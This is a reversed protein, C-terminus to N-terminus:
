VGNDDIELDIFDTMTLSATTTAVPLDQGTIDYWSWAEYQNSPYKYVSPPTSHPLGIVIALVALGALALAFHPTVLWPFLRQWLSSTHLTLAQGGAQAPLSALIRQQLTHVEAQTPLATAQESQIRRDLEASQAQYRQLLPSHALCELTDQREEAPWCEPWSGYADLIAYARQEASSPSKPNM